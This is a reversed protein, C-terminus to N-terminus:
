AEDVIIAAETLDFIVGQLNSIIKGPIRYSKNTNWKLRDAMLKCFRRSYVRMCGKENYLNRPVRFSNFSKKDCAKLLLFKGDSRILIHVFKPNNLIRIVDRFVYVTDNKLYFSIYVTNDM